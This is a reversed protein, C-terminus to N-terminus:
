YWPAIRRINIQDPLPAVLCAHVCTPFKLSRPAHSCLCAARCCAHQGAAGAVCPLKQCGLLLGAGRAHEDRLLQRWGPAVVPASVNGPEGVLLLCCLYWQWAEWAARGWGTWAATCWVHLNWQRLAKAQRALGMWSRCCPTSGPSSPLPCGPM